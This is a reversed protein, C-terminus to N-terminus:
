LIVVCLRKETMFDTGSKPGSFTGAKSPLDIVLIPGCLLLMALVNWCFHPVLTPWSARGGIRIGLGLIAAALTQLLRSALDLFRACNKAQFAAGASM